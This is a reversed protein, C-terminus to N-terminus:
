KTFEEKESSGTPELCHYITASTFWSIASILASSSSNLEPLFISLRISASIFFPVSFRTFVTALASPSCIVPSICTHELCKEFTRNLTILPPM